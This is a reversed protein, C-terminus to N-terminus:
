YMALLFFLIFMSKNNADWTTKDMMGLFGASPGDGSSKFSHKKSPSASVGPLNGGLHLLLSIILTM